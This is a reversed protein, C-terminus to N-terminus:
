RFWYGKDSTLGKIIQQGIEADNGTLPILLGIKVKDEAFSLSAILILNLFSLLLKFFIKNM